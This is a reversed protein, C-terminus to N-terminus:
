RVMVLPKTFQERDIRLEVFYMGSAVRQGQEDRGDWRVAHRGAIRPATLLTRVRQGGASFISVRVVADRISEYEITVPGM